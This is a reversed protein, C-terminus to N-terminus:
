PGPAAELVRLMTRLPWEPKVRCGLALPGRRDSPHYRYVARGRVRATAVPGFHRSDTSTGPNDGLVQLGEPTAVAVRKVMTRSPLRPDPFAVLDDPRLRHGLWRPVLVLRDGPELTPRMSDGVVEVRPFTRVALWGAVAMGVVAVAAGKAAARRDVPYHETRVV